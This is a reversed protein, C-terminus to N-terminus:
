LNYDLRKRAKIQWGIGVLIFMFPLVMSRHRFLSGINGEVFALILMMIFIYVVLIGGEKIKHRIIFKVGLFTAPLLAYYMLMEPVAMIQLSSGVQWPFPALWAIVSAAPIFLLLTFNNTFDLNTLFATRGYSRYGRMTYIWEIPSADGINHGSLSFLYSLHQKMTNLALLVIVIFLMVIMIFFHKDKKILPLLLAFPLTLVYFAFFSVGRFLKLIMSAAIIAVIPYIRFRIRLSVIAWILVAVCLISIPEKLNQMSWTFLSPWFATLIASIRAAKEGALEEAIYYIFVLALSGALCNIFLLSLPSKGTFLYVMGNWFDYPGLNGSTTIKMIKAAIVNTDRIGALWMQTISYGTESYSWGDGFLGIGRQLYLFNYVLSATIIRSLFALFFLNLLFGADKKATLLILIIGLFLSSCFIIFPAITEMPFLATIFLVLLAILVIYRLKM